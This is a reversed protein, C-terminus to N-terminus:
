QIVESIGSDDIFADTFREKLHMNHKLNLVMEIGKEGDPIIGLLAGLDTYERSSTIVSIEKNKCTKLIYLQTSKDTLIASTYIVLVSQHSLAQLQKGIDSKTEIVYIKAELQNQLAARGITAKQAQLVDDALFMSVEKLDPFIKKIAYFFQYVNVEAASLAFTWCLALICGWLVVPRSRM